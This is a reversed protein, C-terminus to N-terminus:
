TGGPTSPHDESQIFCVLSLQYLSIKGTNMGLDRNRSFKRGCCKKNSDGVEFKRLVKDEVEFWEVEGWRFAV